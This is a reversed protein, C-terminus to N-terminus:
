ESTPISYHMQVFVWNGDQKELVGTARLGEMKIEEGQFVVEWDITESFWAVVGSDHVKIIRDKAVLKSSESAEFQEKMAKKLMEWGVLRESADTGINVTEADKANIQALLEMDETEIMELQKDLVIEVEAKEADMDVGQAYGCVALVILGFIVLMFKKM